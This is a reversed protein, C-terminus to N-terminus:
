ASALRHGARPAEAGRGAVSSLLTQPSEQMGRAPHLVRANEPEQLCRGNKWM